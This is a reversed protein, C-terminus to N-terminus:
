PTKCALQNPCLLSLSFSYEAQEKFHAVRSHMAGKIQSEIEHAGENPSESDRAEEAMETVRNREGRERVISDALPSPNTLTYRSIYSDPITKRVLQPKNKIQVTPDTKKM